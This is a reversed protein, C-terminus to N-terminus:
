LRLESAEWGESFTSSKSSKPMMSKMSARVGKKNGRTPPPPFERLEWSGNSAQIMGGVSAQQLQDEDKDMQKRRRQENSPYMSYAAWM